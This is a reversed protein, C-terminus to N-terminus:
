AVEGEKFKLDIADDYQFMVPMQQLDNPEMEVSGEIFELPRLEDLGHAAAYQTQPGDCIERVACGGCVENLVRPGVIDRARTRESQFWGGEAEIKELAVRRSANLRWEWPDFSVQHYGSVNQAFGFEEAICLPFYRVNVEWKAAELKEIAIALKEAAARYTVQFEIEDKGTKNAWEHFPNFLIPNWVTPARDLLIGVPLDNLNEKQITTNFRVPRKVLDLGALLRDFSGAEGLVDDHATASGGHLSVLWDELGAREIAKYLPEGKEAGPFNPKFNDRTNQGHTIITPKLGIKSCHRVLEVIYKYITPEGGSIDAADLKYYHRFLNAHNLMTELSYFVLNKQYAYYCMQCAKDCPGGSEGMFLWGRSSVENMKREKFLPRM